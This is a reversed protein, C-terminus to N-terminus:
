PSALPVDCAAGWTAPSAASINLVDFTQLLAVSTWAMWFM